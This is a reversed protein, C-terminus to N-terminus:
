FYVRLVAGPELASWKQKWALDLSKALEQGDTGRVIRPTKAPSRFFDEWHALVVHDPKLLTLLREPYGDVNAFSAATTVLVTRGAPELRFVESARASVRSGAAGDNVVLRVLPRANGDLVDVEYAYVRGKKWGRARGPLERLPNPVDGTAITYSVGWQKFNPAHEWAVARFRLTPSLTYWTGKDNVDYAASGRVDELRGGPRVPGLGSVPNLLNVATQSGYVRANPLLHVM